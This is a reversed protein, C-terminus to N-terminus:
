NDIETYRSCRACGSCSVAIVKRNEFREQIKNFSLGKTEPLIVVVALISILMTIAFTWWAFKPTVANAYSEFNTTIIIAFTWNTLTAVSGVLTRVNDALLESLMTWPIPGWGISFAGIFLMMTTIALWGIDPSQCVPVDVCDAGLCRDCVDEYIYFYVGLMLCSLLMGSSSAVLLTKRGLRDILFVSLLTGVVQVGGVAGLTALNSETEDFHAQEFIESSFFVAANIGSLQQFFMLMLVLVLPWLLTFSRFMGILKVLPINSHAASAKIDAIDERIVSKSHKGRLYYLAKLYDGGGTKTIKGKLYLWRPSEVTTPLLM